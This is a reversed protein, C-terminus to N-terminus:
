ASARRQRVHKCGSCPPHPQADSAQFPRSMNAWWVRTVEWDRECLVQACHECVDLQHPGSGEMVLLPVTAVCQCGRTPCEMM